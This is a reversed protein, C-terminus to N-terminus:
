AFLLREKEEPSDKVYFRKVWEGTEDLYLEANPPPAVGPGPAPEDSKVKSRGRLRFHNFLRMFEGLYIDAVRTDGRIILMNEDNRRTSADSFNASGSIVIPDDSLPDILAYKTHIFDVNGNLNTLREEVWQKWGGKGVFGGAVVRNDPDRSITDIGTGDKDLLLYRLYPKDVEFVPAVQKAVGFAATLFVAQEAGDMLKAYWELAELKTRPSYVNTISGTRPKGPPIKTFDETWTKAASVAPDGQLETWYALYRKAVNPDEVQHGVNSHGFIGGDTMNTSGTWVAVPKGDKLLVIFKNHSITTNKRPTVLERIGAADIAADNQRGASNDGVRDYVIQVDAGADRALGFAELAPAYQFEYIATRLGWGPGNARGIFRTMGEFLGRSLWKFAEGNPVEDPAKYGFRRVYAQSGAVGRNFLIVHKGDAEVETETGIQVSVSAREEPKAPDGYLAAVRYSYTHDPKATYDGWVFAQFPNLASSHDSLEDKDNAEFVLMNDLYYREGETHDTREIAFGLLGDTDAEDLDMGILVVYTGAIAQVTLGDNSERVRM